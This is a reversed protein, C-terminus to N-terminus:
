RSAGSLSQQADIARAITARDVDLALALSNALTKRRYAFAGRVVKWFMALDRPAVAPEGRRELLVVSSDVKPPPFFSRPSLTFADDVHM